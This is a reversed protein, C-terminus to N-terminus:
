VYHLYKRKTVVHEKWKNNINKIYVGDICYEKPKEENAIVQLALHLVKVNSKLIVFDFLADCPIIDIALLNTYIVIKGFQLEVDVDYPNLLKYKKGNTFTYNCSNRYIFNSYSGEIYTSAINRICINFTDRREQNLLYYIPYTIPEESKYTNIISGADYTFDLTNPINAKHDFVLKLYIFSHIFQHLPFVIDRNVIVECLPTFHDKYIMIKTIHKLIDPDIYTIKFFIDYFHFIPIFLETHNYIENTIFVRNLNLFRINFTPNKIWGKIEKLTMGTIEM